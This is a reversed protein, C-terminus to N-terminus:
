HSNASKGRRHTGTVYDVDGLCVDIFVGVCQRQPIMSSCSVHPILVCKLSEGAVNLGVQDLTPLACHNTKQTTVVNWKGMNGKNTRKELIVITMIVHYTRHIQNSHVYTDLRCLIVWIKFNLRITIWCKSVFENKEKQGAKSVAICKVEVSLFSLPIFSSHGM